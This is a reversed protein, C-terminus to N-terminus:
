PLVRMKGAAISALSSLFAAPDRRSVGDPGPPTASGGPVIQRQRAGEFPDRRGAAIDPLAALFEAESMRTPPPPEAVPPPTPPPYLAAQIAAIQDPTLLALFETVISM